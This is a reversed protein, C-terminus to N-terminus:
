PFCRSVSAISDPDHALERIKRSASELIIAASDVNIADLNRVIRRVSENESNSQAFDLFIQHPKHSEDKSRRCIACVSSTTTGDTCRICLGHGLFLVHYTFQGLFTIHRYSQGCSIFRFESLPLADGCIPCTVDYMEYSSSYQVVGISANYILGFDSHLSM